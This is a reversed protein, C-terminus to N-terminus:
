SAWARVPHILILSLYSALAFVAAATELRGASRTQPRRVYAAAAAAAALAALVPLAYLQPAAVTRLALVAAAAGGAVAAVVAAASVRPGWLASYTEVGRREDEPAWTKRGIELALGNCLSLALFAAMGPGFLPRGESAGALALLAILPMVAMHSVLYVVPRAKLWRGAFFEATMLGMWTWVLLLWGAMPAGIRLALALQLAAGALAVLRLEHLSVLGRPVPREPRFQLDDAFDKHEDAIRLQLFLLFVMAGVTLAEPWGPEAGLAAAYAVAAGAFVAILVGHKFLPFREAQYAWLRRALPAPSASSLTM